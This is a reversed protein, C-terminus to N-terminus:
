KDRGTVLQALAVLEGSRMSEPLATLAANMREDAYRHAAQKGGAAEVLEAAHLIEPTSMAHDSQYLKALEAASQGDSNLAVVIPLTAKRRALDNGVPKGTAAPDGWIGILDDVIQFALGLEYGFREMAAVTAADADAGASLAGLACACGMLVATKGAAMRLYDPVTINTSREFACDKQQGVCLDLCTQELRAIADVAVTDSLSETLIRMALAHLADGLLIANNVGWVRWVTARGRRTSDGDMVDDHLLTFNHILEVAAAAPVADAANGCARAVGFVLAARISKGPAGPVECRNADWWGFHYGGMTALPEPLSGIAKRLLPDCEIRARRLVASGAQSAETLQTTEVSM